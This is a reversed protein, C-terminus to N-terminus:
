RLRQQTMGVPMQRYLVDRSKLDTWDRPRVMRTEGPNQAVGTRSLVDQASRTITQLELDYAIEASPSNIVLARAHDRVSIETSAGRPIRLRNTQLVHNRQRPQVIQTFQVDYEATGRENTVAFQPEDTGIHRLTVRESGAGGRASLTLMGRPGLARLVYGAEGAKVQLDLTGGSSGLHFLILRGATPGDSPSWPLMRLMGTAPDTDVERTGPVYLRRGDADTVQEIEADGGSIFVASLIKGIIQDGLSAPSRSHPGTISIPTIVINGGSGPDTPWTGSHATEYSWSSGSITIFNLGSTYWQRGHPGPDAWTRYSDYVYLRRNGGGLDESDYAIITHSGDLPNPSKSISVITPDNKLKYFQFSQYAYEADLHKNNPILDLFFQLTPLNAQHGQMINIARKLGPDAPGTSDLDFVIDGTYQSIPACYGLHGGYKMIMLSLLALGYCNGSKALETKYVNDYFLVDFGSSLTPPIGIYTDRYVDWPLTADKFNTFRWGYQEVFDDGRALGACMMVSLSAVLLVQGASRM